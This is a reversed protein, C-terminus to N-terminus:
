RCALPLALILRPQQPGALEKPSRIKPSSSIMERRLSFNARSRARPTSGYGARKWGVCVAASATASSCSAVPSSWASLTAPRTVAIRTM